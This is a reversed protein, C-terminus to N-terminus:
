WNKNFRFKCIKYSAV